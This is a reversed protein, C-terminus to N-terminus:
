HNNGFGLKTRNFKGTMLGAPGHDIVGNISGYAAGKGDGFDKVSKRHTGASVHTGAHQIGDGKLDIQIAGDLIEQRITPAPMPESSFVYGDAVIGQRGPAPKPNEAREVTKDVVDALFLHAGIERPGYGPRPIPLDHAERIQDPPQGGPIPAANVVTSLHETSRESPKVHFTADGTRVNPGLNNSLTVAGTIDVREPPSAVPVTGGIYMDIAVGIDLTIKAMPLTLHPQLLPQSALLQRFWDVLIERAETGNLDNYTLESPLRMTEKSAKPNGSFVSSRSVESIWALM